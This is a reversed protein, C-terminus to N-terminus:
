KGRNFLKSVVKIFNPFEPKQVFEIVMEAFDGMSLAKIEDVSLNSTNSLMQYIDNKAYCINSMLVQVVEIVIQLSASEEDLGEDIEGTMITHILKKVDDTEFLAKFKNLGIKGIISFMLFMDEGSLTRFEWAKNNTEEM